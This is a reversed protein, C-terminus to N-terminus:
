QDPFGANCDSTSPHHERGRHLMIL